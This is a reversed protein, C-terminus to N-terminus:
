KVGGNEEDIWLGRSIINIMKDTEKTRPVESNVSYYLYHQLNMKIREENKVTKELQNVNSALICITAIMGVVLLGCMVKIFNKM